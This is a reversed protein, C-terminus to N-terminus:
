GGTEPSFEEGRCSSERQLQSKSTLKTLAVEYEHLYGLANFVIACLAEDTTVAHGDRKDRVLGHGRHLTWLDMFHRFMSKIYTDTPIGRQWNDSPRLKGDSQLMHSDMYEAYRRLALPSLFGEYDLKGVDNDRTAGTDFTRIESTEQINVVQAQDFSDEPPAM